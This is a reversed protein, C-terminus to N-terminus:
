NINPLGTDVVALRDLFYRVEYVVGCALFAVRVNNYDGFNERDVDFRDDGAVENLEVKIM